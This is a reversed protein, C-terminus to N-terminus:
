SAVLWLLLGALILPSLLMALTFLCCGEGPTPAHHSFENSFLGM